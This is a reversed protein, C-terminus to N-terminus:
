RAAALAADIGAKPSGLGTVPDYGPQAQCTEIPTTCQTANDVGTTIDRFADHPLGYILKQAQFGAGSLPPQRDKTRLQDASAIIGAWVPAGVSTGGLQFWGGTISGAGDPLGFSDYVAVGTLPDADFSVDPIARHPFSSASDQYSPRPEFASIGGGAGEPGTGDGCCWATEFDVAGAPTLSFTTGGVALVHPDYAPYQGPNGTDGTSFVCLTSALACHGDLQTEGQFESGGYSNSIVSAGLGSAYDIAQSMHILTPDYAEVLVISADPAIAHVMQVDLDSELAWGADVALVGFPHVSTFNFCGKKPRKTKKDCPLPLGFQRSFTALDDQAYPNDFADVVAVTQGKGTGTLHLYSRLQTATLGRPTTVTLQPKSASKWGQVKALLPHTVWGTGTHAQPVAVAAPHSSQGAPGSLGDDPSTVTRVPDSSSASTNVAHTAAAAAGIGASAVLAAVTVTVAVRGRRMRAWLPGTPNKLTKVRETGELRWLGLGPM